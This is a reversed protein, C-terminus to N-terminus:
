KKNKNITNMNCLQNCKQFKIFNVNLKAGSYKPKFLNKIKYKRPHKALFIKLMSFNTSM